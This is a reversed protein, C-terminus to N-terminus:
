APGGRMSLDGPPNGHFLNGIGGDLAMNDCSHYFTQAIVFNTLNDAQFAPLDGKKDLQHHSPQVTTGSPLQNLVHLILEGLISEVKLKGELLM